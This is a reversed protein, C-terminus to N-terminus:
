YKATKRFNNQWKASYKKIKPHKESIETSM